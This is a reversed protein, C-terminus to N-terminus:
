AFERIILVGNLGASGPRAASSPGNNAGSSGAGYGSGTLGNSNFPVGPGGSGYPCAGGNGSVAAQITACTGIVGANGACSFINCGTPANGGASAGVVNPPPFAVGANGGSSGPFDAITGFITGTGPVGNQGAGQAAGGVGITIAQIGISGILYGKGYGGSGTSGGFSVEGSTTAPAGGSSGSAGCGEYETSNAGPLQTWMGAGTTTPAGGNISVFQTGSVNTFVSVRLLRGAQINAMQGATPGSYVLDGTLWSLASTGEQGRLVTLTNGTVATAYVVEFFQGTSQDNLTLALFEGAPISTPLDAGNAVTISTASSSIANSLATNINNEFIFANM